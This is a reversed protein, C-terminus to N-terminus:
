ADGQQTTVAAIDRNVEGLLALVIPSAYNIVTTGAPFGEIQGDLRLRWREGNPGVLEFLVVDTEITM